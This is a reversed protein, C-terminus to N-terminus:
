IFNGPKNQNCCHRHLQYQVLPNRQSEQLDQSAIGITYYSRYRAYSKHSSHLFKGMPGIYSQFYHIRGFIAREWNGLVGGKAILKRYMIKQLEVVNGTNRSVLRQINTTNVWQATKQASETVINTTILPESNMMECLELFEQTGVAIQQTNNQGDVVCYGRTNLPGMGSFNNSFCNVANGEEWFYYDSFSGGPYRMVSPRLSAVSAYIPVNLTINGNYSLYPDNYLGDALNTWQLNHGFLGLSMLFYHPFSSKNVATSKEIDFTISLDFTYVELFFLLVLFFVKM